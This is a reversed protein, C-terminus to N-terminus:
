STLSHPLSLYALCSTLSFTFPILKREKENKNLKSEVWQGVLDKREKEVVTGGGGWVWWVVGGSV